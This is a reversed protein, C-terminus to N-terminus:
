IRRTWASRAASTPPPGVRARTPRWSMSSAPKRFPFTAPPCIGELLGIERTYFRNFARIEEVLTMASAPDQTTKSLVYHIVRALSLSM